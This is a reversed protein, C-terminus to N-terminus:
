SSELKRESIFPLLNTFYILSNSPMLMYRGRNADTTRPPGFKRFRAYADKQGSGDRVMKESETAAENRAENSRMEAKESAIRLGM